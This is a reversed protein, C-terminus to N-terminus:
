RLIETSYHTSSGLRTVDYNRSDPADEDDDSEENVETEAPWLYGTSNPGVTRFLSTLTGGENLTYLPAM